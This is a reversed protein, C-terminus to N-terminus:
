GALKLGLMPGGSNFTLVCGIGGLLLTGLCLGSYRYWTLGADAADRTKFWRGLTAAWEIGCLAGAVLLVLAVPSALLPNPGAPSTDRDPNM